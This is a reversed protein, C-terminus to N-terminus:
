KVAHAIAKQKLAADIRRVAPHQALVAQSIIGLNETAVGQRVIEARLEDLGGFYHNILSASCGAKEAVHARQLTNLGDRKEALKVAIKLLATKREAPSLRNFTVPTSM